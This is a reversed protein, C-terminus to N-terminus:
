QECVPLKRVAIEMVNVVVALHVKRERQIIQAEVYSNPEETVLVMM